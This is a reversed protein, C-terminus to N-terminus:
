FTCYVLPIGYMPYQFTPLRLSSLLVAYSRALLRKRGYLSFVNYLLLLEIFYHVLVFFFHWANLFVRLSLSLVRSFAQICVPIICCYRFQVFVLSAPFVDDCSSLRVCAMGFRSCFVCFVFQFSEDWFLVQAPLLFLVFFDYPFVVHVRCSLLFLLMCSRSCTCTPFFFVHFCCLWCTFSLPCLRFFAAFTRLAM